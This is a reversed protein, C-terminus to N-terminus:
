WRDDKTRNLTCVSSRRQNAARTPRSLQRRVLDRLAGVDLLDARDTHAGFLRAAFM